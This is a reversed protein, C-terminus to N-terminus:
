GGGVRRHSGELRLDDFELLDDERLPCGCVLLLVLATVILILEPVMLGLGVLMDASM